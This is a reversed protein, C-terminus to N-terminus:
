AARLDFLTTECVVANNDTVGMFLRVGGGDAGEICEIGSVYEVGWHAIWFAPSVFTVVGRVLDMELWYHLYSLGIRIGNVKTYMMDHVVCGWTNGHLHIPSTSGRYTAPAGAAWTIDQASDITIPATEEGEKLYFMKGQLFDLLGLRGDLDFPVVNKAPLAGVDVTNLRQIGRADDTFRGVVMESMMHASAHTCTATFWLVGARMLIRLDELGQYHNLTPTLGGVTSAPVVRAEKTRDDHLLIRNTESDAERVTMRIYTYPAARSPNYCAVNAALGKRDLIPAIKGSLRRIFVPM